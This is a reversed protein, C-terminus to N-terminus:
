YVPLVWEYKWYDKFMAHARHDKSCRGFPCQLALSSLHPLRGPLKHIASSKPSSEGNLVGIQLGCVIGFAFRNQSKDRTYDV